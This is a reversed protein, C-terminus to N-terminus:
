KRSIEGDYAACPGVFKTKKKQDRQNSFPCIFLPIHLSLFPCPFFFVVIIRKGVRRQEKKWNM